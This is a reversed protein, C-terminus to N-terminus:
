YDDEEIKIEPIRFRVKVEGYMYPLPQEREVEWRFLSDYTFYEGLVPRKQLNLRIKQILSLLDRHADSYNRIDTEAESGLTIGIILKVYATSKENDKGKYNHIMIFPVDDYETMGSPLQYNLGKLPLFGSQINIGTFEQASNKLQMNALCEKLREELAKELENYTM